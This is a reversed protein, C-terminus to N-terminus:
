AARAAARALLKEEETWVKRERKEQPKVEKAPAGGLVPPRLTSHRAAESHWPHDAQVPLARGIEREVDRLWARLALSRREADRLVFGTVVPARTLDM